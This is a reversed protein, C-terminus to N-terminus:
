EVINSDPVEPCFVKVRPIKALFCIDPNDIRLISVFSLQGNWVIGEKTTGKAFHLLIYIHSIQAFYNEMEDSVVFRINVKKAKQLGCSIDEAIEITPFLDFSNEVRSITTQATIEM